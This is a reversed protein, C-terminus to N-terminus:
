CIKGTEKMLKEEDSMAQLPLHQGKVDHDYSSSSAPASMHRSPM